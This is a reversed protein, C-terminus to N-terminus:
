EHARLPETRRGSQYEAKLLAVREEWRRVAEEYYIYVCRECGRGCCEDPLPSEPRAPLELGPYEQESM